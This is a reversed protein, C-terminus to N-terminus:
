LHRLINKIHSEEICYQFDQKKFWTVQRKAYNRTHQKIKEIATQYDFIGDLYDFVEKYGVTQLANYQRYPLLSKVEDLLGAEIMEDVRQNIREYLIDRELNIWFSEVKWPMTTMKGTRQKSFPIGTMEIAELARQVRQRNNIDVAKYYSPDATALREQLGKIGEKHFVENYGARIEPTIRPLDDLGELAAKIYFGSGGVLIATDNEKFYNNLAINLDEAYQGASYDETVDHTDIFHHTVQALEAKSPKATGIDMKRYFQRADASFIEASFHAALTLSLATKGSATPGAIVILRKDINSTM